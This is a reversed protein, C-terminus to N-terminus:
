RIRATVEDKCSHLFYPGNTLHGCLQTRVLIQVIYKSWCCISQTPDLLGAKCSFNLSTDIWLASLQISPAM